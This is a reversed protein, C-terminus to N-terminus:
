EDSAFDSKFYETDEDSDGKIIEYTSVNLAVNITTAYQFAITSGIILAVLLVAFVGTLIGWKRVGTGKKKEM